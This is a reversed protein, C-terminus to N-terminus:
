CAAGKALAVCKRALIDTPDLLIPLGVSASGSPAILPLETCGLIVAEAGKDSIHQIAALLDDRCRGTTFGAKVGHSGYIAEMVGTQTEADPLILTLGVADLADRYVASRVTGATALLGVRTVDPYTARIHVATQTPMNIIPINLHQQIRAVFAHATNCPIAIANAGEAELRKCTAYLPITPDEGEGLLHATRDPIQPNQEVVMKIHDQDRSAQTRRVVKDMFDVTAAPGVGGVVGLRFTGPPSAGDYALALEAYAQNVDLIPRAVRPRLAEILVPLETSGLVIVEAGLSTLNDCAQALWGVSRGSLRGAKIGEPGYVAPMVSGTQIADDPYIVEYAAGLAKDFLRRQRVYSSSVVGIRTAHPHDRRLMDRTAEFINLVTLDLEPAIEDIFSHSVFCPLLAVKCGRREMGKLTNYVHFKRPNPNYGADAVAGADDFPQQEFSIDLQQHDGDAPTSKIIKMLLDAAGIAGLGGVIGFKSRKPTSTM